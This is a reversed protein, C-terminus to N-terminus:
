ESVSQAAPSVSVWFGLSSDRPKKIASFRARRCSGFLCNERRQRFRSADSGEVMTLVPLAYPLGKFSSGVRLPAAAMM